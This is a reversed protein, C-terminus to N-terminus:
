TAQTAVATVVIPPTLIRASPFAHKVLQPEGIVAHPAVPTVDTDVKVDVEVAEAM